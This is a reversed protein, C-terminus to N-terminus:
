LQSPFTGVSIAKSTISPKTPLAGPNPKIWVSESPDSTDYCDLLEEHEPGMVKLLDNFADVNLTWTTRATFLKRVKGHKKAWTFVRASVLLSKAANHRSHLNGFMFSASKDELVHRWDNGLVESLKSLAASVKAEDSEISPKYKDKIKNIEDNMAATTGALSNTGVVITRILEAVVDRVEARSPTMDSM